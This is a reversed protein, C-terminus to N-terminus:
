VGEFTKQRIDIGWLLCSEQHDLEMLCICRSIHIAYLSRRLENHSEATVASLIHESCHDLSIGDHENALGALMLPIVAALVIPVHCIVRLVKKQESQSNQYRSYCLPRLVGHEAKRWHGQACATVTQGFAVRSLLRAPRWSTVAEWGGLIATELM